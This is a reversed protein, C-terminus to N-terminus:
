RIVVTGALKDHWGQKRRDWAIWLFGLGLPLVSLLYGFSRVVLKLFPPKGGTNVDVIRAALAAKGPTASHYRWFVISAILPFVYLTVFQIADGYPLSGLLYYADNYALALVPAAVLLYLVVDIAGAQVRVWFGAYSPQEASIGASTRPRRWRRWGLYGGLLAGWWLVFFIAWIHPPFLIHLTPKRAERDAAAIMADLAADVGAYYGRERLTPEFIERSIRSVAADPLFGEVDYGTSIWWRKDEFAVVFVISRRNLLGNSWSDFVRLAYDNIPEDGTSAVHILAIMLGTRHYADVLKQGLREQEEPTLNGTFDNIAGGIEMPPVTLRGGPPPIVWDRQVAMDAAAPAALVALLVAVFFHAVITKNKKRVIIATM